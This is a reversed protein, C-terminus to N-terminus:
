LCIDYLPVQVSDVGAEATKVLPVYSVKLQVIRLDLQIEVLHHLKYQHPLMPPLERLVGGLPEV